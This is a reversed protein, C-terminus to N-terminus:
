DEQPGYVEEYSPLAITHGRERAMEIFAEAMAFARSVTEEVTQLRLKQRGASDEGDPTACVMAWREIFKGAIEGVDTLMERKSVILERASHTRKYKDKVITIQPKM